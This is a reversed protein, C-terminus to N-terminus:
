TRTPKFGQKLCGSFDLVTTYVTPPFGQHCQRYYDVKNRTTSGPGCDIDTHQTYAVGGDICHVYIASNQHPDQTNPYANPYHSWGQCTGNTKPGVYLRLRSRNGINSCGANSTMGITVYYEKEPATLNPKYYVGSQLWDPSSAQERVPGARTASSSHQCEPGPMCCSLDLARDYLVPPTGQICRNLAYRKPHATGTCAITGPYQSYYM